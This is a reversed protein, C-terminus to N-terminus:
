PTQAAINGPPEAFYQPTDVPYQENNITPEMALLERWEDTMVPDVGLAAAVAHDLERRVPDRHAASLRLIEKRRLRDFLATLPRLDVRENPLLLSKLSGIEHIPYTLTRARRNLLQLIGFTSNLFCTYAKAVKPPIATADDIPIFASGIAPQKSFIAVVRCNPVGTRCGVLVHGANALAKEASHKKKPKATAWTDPPSDMCRHIKESISCYSNRDGSDNGEKVQYDFNVRVAIGGAGYRYRSGSPALGALRDISSIAAVLEPSYWQAPCWDGTKIKAAPWMVCNGWNRMDGSEIADALDTVEAVDLPMRALSIFRTPAGGDTARRAILISEHISTSASFATNKPDHSTIIMDIHFRDAIYKREGQGNNATVATTPIIKAVTGNWGVLRDALQTFFPAISRKALAQYDDTSQNRINNALTILRKAMATGVEASFQRKQKPTDTFPPNMLVVDFETPITLATKTEDAVSSAAVPPIMGDLRLQRDPENSAQDLQDFLELSGHRVNGIDPNGAGHAMGYELTYLNMKDYAINPAGLTLNCAALQTAQTTIDFGYISQEVLAKHLESLEERSLTQAANARAKITNLVAMLLTGTGCCPDIIRLQKIQKTNNWDIMDGSIALRALLMASLNKTYFAGQSAAKDLIRHYLPGAHDYGLDNLSESNEVACNALIYIAEQLRAKNTDQLHIMLDLARAFIPRYDKRLIARWDEILPPIVERKSGMAELAHLKGLHGSHEMRKHMLCANGIILAATSAAEQLKKERETDDLSELLEPTAGLRTALMADVREERFIRAARQVASIIIDAVRIGTNGLGSNKALHAYISDKRFQLALQAQADAADREQNEAVYQDDEQAPRLRDVFDFLMRDKLESILTEDHSQLARLVKGVIQFRPSRLELAETISEGERLSFPAIIYGLKKNKDKGKRMVRGISQIIDVESSRPDLFSVSNLDPVDVGESFLRCNCIVRVVYETEAANLKQIEQYRESASSKADLHITEIAFPDNLARERNNERYGRLWNKVVNSQLVEALWKSRRITNAYALTRSLKTPIDDTKESQVWGNLAMAIVLASVYEQIDPTAGRETIDDGIQELASRMGADLLEERLGLCIVRVDCLMGADVAKRFPLHYFKRGYVTSDSMDTITIDPTKNKRNQKAQDGYIRPTATMYLRKACRAQNDDHILQFARRESKNHQIGSTRHAEDAIALDFAPAAYAHQAKIVKDLSQYTSFVALIGGKEAAKRMEDAITRPNTTVDFSLEQISLAESINKVTKDSCVAVCRLPRTTHRLWEKRSQAVLAISPAIFLISGSTPIIREAIRLSTFTKGTGCAMILQGRDANEFGEVVAEIAEKQLPLPQLPKVNERKLPTDHYKYFSIYHINTKALMRKVIDTIPLTVILWRKNFAENQSGSLFKQVDSKSVHNKEAYCKCQIAVTDGSNLKAIRDVGIDRGDLGYKAREPWNGPKWIDRVELDPENKAVLSFLEEFALGKATDPMNRQIFELAEGATACEKWSEKKM